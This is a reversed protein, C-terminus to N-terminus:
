VVFYMYHRQLHLSLLHEKVRPISMFYVHLNNLHIQIKAFLSDFDAITM